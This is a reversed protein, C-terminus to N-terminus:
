HANYFQWKFALWRRNLLHNANRQFASFSHNWRTVWMRSISERVFELLSGRRHRTWRVEITMTEERISKRRGGIGRLGGTVQGFNSYNGTEWSIEYRNLDFQNARRVWVMTKTNSTWGSDMDLSEIDRIRILRWRICRDTIARVRQNPIVITVNNDASRSANRKLKSGYTEKGCQVQWKELSTERSLTNTKWDLRIYWFLFLSFPPLCQFPSGARSNVWAFTLFAGTADLFDWLALV